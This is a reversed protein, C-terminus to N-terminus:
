LAINFSDYYKNSDFKFEYVRRWARIIAGAPYQNTNVSTDIVTYLISYTNGNIMDLPGKQNTCQNGIFHGITGSSNTNTYITYHSTIGQQSITNTTGVLSQDMNSLIFVRTYNGTIVDAYPNISIEYVYDKKSLTYSRITSSPTPYVMYTTSGGGNITITWSSGSPATTTYLVGGAPLNGSFICSGAQIIVNTLYDSTSNRLSYSVTSAKSLDKQCVLQNNAYTGAVNCGLAIARYKICGQYPSFSNTNISGIKLAYAETAILDAM